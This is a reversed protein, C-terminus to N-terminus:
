EGTPGIKAQPVRLGLGARDGRHGGSGSSLWGPTLSPSRRPVTCTPLDALDALENGPGGLDAPLLRMDGRSCTAGIFDPEPCGRCCRGGAADSPLLRLVPHGADDDVPGGARVDLQQSTVNLGGVLLSCYMRIVALAARFEAAVEACAFRLTEVVCCRASM